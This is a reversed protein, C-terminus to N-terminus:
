GRDSAEVADRVEEPDGVEEVPETMAATTQSPAFGDTETPTTEEGAADATHTNDEPARNEHDGGPSGRKRGSQIWVAVGGLLLATVAALVGLLVPALRNERGQGAASVVVTNVKHSDEGTPTELSAAYRIFESAVADAIRKARIPSRDTVEIDILATKPPVNAVDVKDALQTASLSLGLKDVVRQSVVGSTILPIYSQVRRAAVEENQYAAATTSGQISVMLRTSSVYTAPTLYIATLGLGFTVTSVALFTLWHRRVAAAFASITL